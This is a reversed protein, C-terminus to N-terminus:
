SPDILTYEIKSATGVQYPDPTIVIQSLLTNQFILDGFFPKKAWM